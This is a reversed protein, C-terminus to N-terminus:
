YYDFPIGDHSHLVAAVSESRIVLTKSVGAANLLNLLPLLSSILESLADTTVPRSWAVTVVRLGVVTVSTMGGRNTKQRCGSFTATATLQKVIFCLFPGPKQIGVTLILLYRM